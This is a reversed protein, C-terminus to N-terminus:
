MWDSNPKYGKNLNLTNGEQGQTVPKFDYGENAQNGFEGLNLTNNTNAINSDTTGAQNATQAQGFSSLQEKQEEFIKSGANEEKSQWDQVRLKADIIKQSPDAQPEPTDQVEPVDNVGLIENAVEGLAAKKLLPKTQETVFPVRNGKGADMFGAKDKYEM